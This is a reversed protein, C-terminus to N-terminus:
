VIFLERKEPDKSRCNVFKEVKNAIDIKQTLNVKVKIRANEASERSRKNILAQSCLKDAEIPNEIFYIELNKKLFETLADAIFTNTIAKKTQNEYSTQTSFSNTVLVLCDQIDAFTIKSENKNYKEKSRLYKDVSYVFATKVAKEPSGGHELFSSNHYYELMNVHNSVFFSVEAKLKYDKKDERDKGSTETKWIVPSTLATDGVIESVYDIIGNEYLYEETEFGKATQYRLIFKIGSNVVSQRHLMDSFYERPINIDTFVELDPKWKIITGSKKEKGQAERKTLDGDVNGKKFNIEYVNEGDRSIVNMYESSYQTACAGLGNLGLSYQYSSFDSDNDYKGGAYLECFILDWNYRGEKENYDLPIGRGKDEVELSNDSYVTMIIENGYGERAEDVANSLIEFASHECGELGDSGFIVAPRKRVRDAGKLATISTNGYESINNSKAKAM